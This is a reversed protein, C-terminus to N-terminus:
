SKEQSSVFTKNRLIEMFRSLSDIGEAEIDFIEYDVLLLPDFKDLFKKLESIDIDLVEKTLIIFDDGELRFILLNEFNKLLYSAFSKLLADGEKWSYKQNYAGFNHISIFNIIKSSKTIFNQSLMLELYTQNYLGSIQDKYFYAFREQEIEGFPLQSSNPDIKVKAFAKLAFEVIKPDFQTGSNSKVEALAEASTLRAKYIRNTTMADFADAVIMIRSLFPIEDGKLQRPYGHGDYREHHSGIVHALEKYMPIKELMQEGASVHEQILTYENAELKGPKLLIADPIIIKGIDHLIGAKYIFDCEAASCGMQTAIAKCYTAVRQSHGGTYTDRKEIMNVLSLLTEEYNYIKEEELMLNKGVEEKVMKELELKYLKNERLAVIKHTIRFITRNMDSFNIPKLMYGSVDLKIAGMLYASDSFATVIIVEIEPADEKIAEIMKLGNMNPMEIDTIVLDFSGKKFANLGLQGDGATVVEKFIKKLYTSVIAILKEDDEVYLVNLQSCIKKLEVVSIM